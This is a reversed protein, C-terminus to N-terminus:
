EARYRLRDAALLLHKQHGAVAVLSCGLPGLDCDACSLFRDITYGSPADSEASASEASVSASPAPLPKSVGINDFQMMDPVRWSFPPAVLVGAEDKRISPLRVHQDSAPTQAAVGARVVVCKCRPCYLDFANTGDAAAASDAPLDAYAVVGPVAAVPRGDALADAHALADRQQSLLLQTWARQQLDADAAATDATM